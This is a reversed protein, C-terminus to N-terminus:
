FFFLFGFNINFGGLDLDTVPTDATVIHYQVEGMFATGPSIPAVFGGLFHFGVETGNDVEPSLLPITSGAVSTKDVSWPYLGLGSGLYPKFSVGSFVYKLSLLIPVLTLEIDSPSVTPPPTTSGKYYGISPTLYLNPALNLDLEAGFFIDNFDNKDLGQFGENASPIFYGLKLGLANPLQNRRPYRPYRPPQLADPKTLDLPPIEEVSPPNQKQIQQQALSDTSSFIFGFLILFIFLRKKM